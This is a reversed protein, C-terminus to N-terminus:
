ETMGPMSGKSIEVTKRGGKGDPGEVVVKDPTVEKLLYDKNTSSSPLGFTTNEEVKFETGGQGLAELTFVATRDYQAFENMREESLPSPIEYVKGKKNPKQDEIRVYTVEVELNIRKNLEKRIESGLLKFRNAMPGKPFFLGDPKVMEGAPVKNVQRKNDAYSFPFEGNSGYGPRLAWTLTEDKAYKLKALLEPISKNDNPDTKANFEELNSFGDGDPDRSPSDAFGPDIRNELWWINPIPDHIPADKIPDIAKEPESSKIVLPVGTFLDVSREGDLAQNWTRDLGLSQKAKPILDAGPVAPSGKGAGGPPKAFDTEVAGIKSWGLYGLGLAVVVAGGLAAKEYNKSLWSM